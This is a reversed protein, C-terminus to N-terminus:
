KVLKQYRKWAAISPEAFKVGKKRLHTMLENVLASYKPPLGIGMPYHRSYSKKKSNFPEVYNPGQYIEVGWMPEGSHYAYYVDISRNVGLDYDFIKFEAFDTKQGGRNMSIKVNGLIKWDGTM